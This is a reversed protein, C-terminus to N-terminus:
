PRVRSGATVAAPAPRDAGGADGAPLRGGIAIARRGNGLPQWAGAASACLLWNIGGDCTRYRRGDRAVITAVDAREAIVGILDADTPSAVRTWGAGDVTRLITGARGVAWCTTRSPAAGALLDQRTGSPQSLWIRRDTSRHITGSDQLVWFARCDPSAVMVARQAPRAKSLNAAIANIEAVLGAPIAAASARAPLATLALRVAQAFQRAIDDDPALPKEM